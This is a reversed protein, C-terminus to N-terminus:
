AGRLLLALVIFIAGLFGFALVYQGHVHVPISARSSDIEADLVYEGPSEFRYSLLIGGAADTEFTGALYVARDDRIRLWVTKYPVGEEGLSVRVLMAANGPVLPEPESTFEVTYPGATAQEQAEHAFVQPSVLLCCCVLLLARRM